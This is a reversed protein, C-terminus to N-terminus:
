PIPQAGFLHVCIVTGAIIALLGLVLLLAVGVSPMDDPGIGATKGCRSCMLNGSSTDGDTGSLNFINLWPVWDHHCTPEEPQEQTAQGQDHDLDQTTM